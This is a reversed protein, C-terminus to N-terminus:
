PETTISHHDFSPAWPSNDWRGVWPASQRHIPAALRAQTDAHAATPPANLPSPAAALHLWLSQSAIPEPPHWDPAQRLSTQTSAHTPPADWEGDLTWADLRLEDPRRAHRAACQLHAHIVPALAPAPAQRLHGDGQSLILPDGWPDVPFPEGTDGDLLGEDLRGADLEIARGDLMHYVRFFNVHAPISARVVHAIAPLEAPNVLRGPDIHLWAGDQDVTANTHGLWGLACQVAAATGRQMLWPLAAAILEDTSDFYRAFEALAWEAALWPKFPEPHRGDLPHAAAALTDWRPASQDVARELATSGTPLITPRPDTM